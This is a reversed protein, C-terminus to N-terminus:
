ADLRGETDREAPDHFPAHGVVLLTDAGAVVTKVILLRPDSHLRWVESPEGEGRTSIWCEVGGAGGPEAAAAVMTYGAQQSCM